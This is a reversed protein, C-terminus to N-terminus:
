KQSKLQIYQIMEEVAENLTTNETNLVLDPNQPVEYPSSIGTFNKIEGNMAKKYLGKPDRKTCTQLSAKVYIESGNRAQEKVTKREQAFPSILSCIVIYGKDELIRAVELTRRINEKREKESFGLDKNLGSRLNDGDLVIVNLSKEFLKKEVAYAITSKGAGSLGTLWFIGGKHSQKNIRDEYTVHGNKPCINNSDCVGNNSYLYILFLLLISTKKM